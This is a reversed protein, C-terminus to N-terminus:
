ERTSALVSHCEHVHCQRRLTGHAQGSQGRIKLYFSLETVGFKNNEWIKAQNRTKLNQWIQLSFCLLCLKKKFQFFFVFPHLQFRIYLRKLQRVFSTPGTERTWQRSRFFSHRCSKKESFREVGRIQTKHHRRERAKDLFKIEITTEFPEPPDSIGLVNGALGPFNLDTPRGFPFNHSIDTQLKRWQSFAFLFPKHKELWTENSRYTQMLEKYILRGLSWGYIGNSTTTLNDSDSAFLIVRGCGHALRFKYRPQLAIIGLPLAWILLCRSFRSYCLKSAAEDPNRCVEQM